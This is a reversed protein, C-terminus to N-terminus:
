MYLYNVNSRLRSVTEEAIRESSEVCEYSINKRDYTKKITYVTPVATVQVTEVPCGTGGISCMIMDEKKIKVESM